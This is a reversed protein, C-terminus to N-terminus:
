PESADAIELLGAVLTEQGFGVLDSNLEDSHFWRFSLAESGGATLDGESLVVYTAAVAHKRPDHPRGPISDPRYEVVEPRTSLLDDPSFETGLASEWERALASRLTESHRV